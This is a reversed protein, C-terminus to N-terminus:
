VVEFTHNSTHQTTSDSVGQNARKINDLAIHLGIRGFEFAKNGTKFENGRFLSGHGDPLSPQWGGNTVGHL